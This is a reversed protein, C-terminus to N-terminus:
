TTANHRYSLIINKVPGPFEQFKNEVSICRDMTSFCIEDKEVIILSNSQTHLKSGGICNIVIEHYHSNLSSTNEKRFLKQKNLTTNCKKSDQKEIASEKLILVVCLRSTSM